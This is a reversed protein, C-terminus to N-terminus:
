APALVIRRRPEYRAGSRELRSRFLTVADAQFSSDPPRALEIGRLRAGRGLRAVTVHALYPRSEREYWGETSLTESLSAQLRGLADAPDEIRVALVHPRRAPLWAAEGLSLQPPAHGEVSSACAAGIPEIESVERWGLFCLTVHLADGRVARVGPLERVADLRWRELAASIAAPLELAVFLRAREAAEGDSM